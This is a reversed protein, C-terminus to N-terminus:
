LLIKVQNELERIDESDDFQHSVKIMSFDQDTKSPKNEAEEQGEMKEDPNTTAASEGEKPPAPPFECGPPPVFFPIKGRQWDNLVMKAVTNIDPEGGKLLKGSKQAVKELFDVASTWEVNKYTRAIYEKKCRNPDDL